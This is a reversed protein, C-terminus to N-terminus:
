FHDILGPISYMPMPRTAICTFHFDAFIQNANASTVALVRDVNNKDEQIWASSLTPASAYNDALHWSALTNANQPRMEGSVRSPKYRYDAWAEQYGFTAKTTMTTNDAYIECKEIPVEGINALVPWYYDLKGHRLWFKELGQSYTHDYRAVCLGIVYGHESFSKEFDYHTDSTASKAGLDGLFDQEGQASNTVEHVALPIRNGGLYEPRQLRADPSTVGFHAKLVEIYRTGSRANRELFKQIQFALRLENISTVLTESLDAWLNVPTFASTSSLSSVSETGFNDSGSDRIVNNNSSFKSYFHYKDDGEFSIMPIMVDSYDGSIEAQRSLVPVFDGNAINISVPDGKQPAPLASTFYDHYKAAVFPKGGNAPAAISDNYGTNVGTQTSDTLPISLPDQLNQDRFFENMILAYARFPLASPANQATGAWEVGVPLGMYDALTGAAFGGSPSAIRPETYEIQPAWPGASNEGMFEKWHNWLLRSPVFFYYTDLYMNDMIPTLMTQLRVVKSTQLRFTDGPLVPDVYIPIVEGVNFSTKHGHSRDFISRQIDVSPLTSFHSEVNRNM